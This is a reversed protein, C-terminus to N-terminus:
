EDEDDVLLYKSWKSTTHREVTNNKIPEVDKLVGDFASISKNCAVTSYLTESSTKAISSTMTDPSNKGEKVNQKDNQVMMMINGCTPNFSLENLAENQQQMSYEQRQLSEFDECENLNGRQINLKQVLDRCEKAAFSTKYVNKISQKCRCLKCEWKVNKKKVIDVQFTECSFCRLVQFEQPM